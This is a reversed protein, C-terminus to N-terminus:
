SSPTADEVDLALQTVQGDQFSLEVAEPKAMASFTQADVMFSMVGLSPSIYWPYKDFQNFTSPKEEPIVSSDIGNANGNELALAAMYWAPGTIYSVGRQTTIPFVVPTDGSIDFVRIPGSAQAPANAPGVQITQGNPLRTVSRFIEIKDPQVTLEIPANPNSSRSIKQIAAGYVGDSVAGAAPLAPRVQVPVSASHAIFSSDHVLTFRDGSWRWDRVLPFGAGIAESFVGTDDDTELMGNAFHAMFFRGAEFSPSTGNALLQQGQVTLYAWGSRGDSFVAAYATGDAAFQGCVIYTPHQMGSLLAATVVVNHSGCANEYQPDGLNQPYSRDGVVRWSGSVDSWFRIHSTQDYTAGEYGGPVAVVTVAMGVAHSALQQRAETLNTPRPDSSRTLRTVGYTVGAAVSISLTVIWVLRRRRM